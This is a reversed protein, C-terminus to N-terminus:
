LIKMKTIEASIEDRIEKSLKEGDIIISTFESTFSTPTAASSCCLAATTTASNSPFYSFDICTTTISPGGALYLAWRSIFTAPRFSALQPPQLLRLPTPPSQRKGLLRRWSSTTSAAM